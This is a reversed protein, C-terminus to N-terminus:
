RPKAPSLASSERVIAHPKTEVTVKVVFQKTDRDYTSDATARAIITGDLEPVGEIVIRSGKQIGM